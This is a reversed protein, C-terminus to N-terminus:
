KEKIKVHLANALNGFYMTAEGADHRALDEIQEKNLNMTAGVSERDDKALLRHAIKVETNKMVEPTLKSPIQDVIIMGQGYARVEALM